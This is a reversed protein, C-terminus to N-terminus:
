KKIKEKNKLNKIDKKDLNESDILKFGYKLFIEKCNGNELFKYFSKIEERDKGKLIGCSYIIPSYLEKPVEYVIQANKMVKSETKYILAYDVEYLDVYQMASRVDKALIINPKIKEFLDLNKLIEVSYVGAPSFQPDGMAIKDGQVEELNDIKRRGAVIMSNEVLVKTESVVEIKKLEEMDKISSLFIFDMTTGNLAQKKLLKSADFDINVTVDRHTAQYQEVIQTLSEKLSIEAGVNIFKKEKKTCGLLFIIIILLFLIKKIM